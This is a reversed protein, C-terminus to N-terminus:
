KVLAAQNRAMMRARAESPSASPGSDVRPAQVGRPADMPRGVSAKRNEMEVDFRAGAYHDDKGDLKVGLKELVLRKVEMDSKGDLKEHESIHPAVELLLKARSAGARMASRADSRARSAKRHDFDLLSDAKMAGKGACMDCKEEGVMGTGDCEDCKVDRHVNTELSDHKAQLATLAGKAEAAAKEAADARAAEAVFRAEADKRAGAIAREIISQANSDAVEVELGDIKMKVM